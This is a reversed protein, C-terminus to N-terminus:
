CAHCFIVIQPQLTKETSALMKNGNFIIPLSRTIELAVQSSNFPPDVTNLGAEDKTKAAKKQQKLQVKVIKGSLKKSLKAVTKKIKKSQRQDESLSSALASAIESAVEKKKGKM